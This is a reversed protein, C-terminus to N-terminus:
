ENSRSQSPPRSFLLLILCPVPESGPDLVSGNIAGEAQQSM